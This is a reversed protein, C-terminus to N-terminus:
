IFNSANRSKGKPSPMWSNSCTRPCWNWLNQRASGCRCIVNKISLLTELAKNAQRIVLDTPEKDPGYEIECLMLAENMNDVLRRYRRESDTLSGLLAAAEDSKARLEDNVTHLEENSAQLEENSTELEENTAQLEENAAQMEENLSQLEETSTELEEVTDQLHERTFALEQELERM